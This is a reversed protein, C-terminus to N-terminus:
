SDNSLGLNMKNTDGGVFNGWEKGCNARYRDPVLPILFAFGNKQIIKISM